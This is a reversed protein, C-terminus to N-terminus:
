IFEHSILSSYTQPREKVKLSQLKGIQSQYYVNRLIAYADISNNITDEIQEKNQNIGVVIGGVTYGIMANQLSEQGRVISLMQQREFWSAISFVNGFGMPLVLYPLPKEFYYQAIDELSLSPTPQSYTAYVDFFGGFGFLTNTLFHSTKKIAVTKHPIFISNAINLPQNLNQFFSFIHPQLPNPTIFDYGKALPLLVWNNGFKLTIFSKRNFSELPDYFTKVEEEFSDDEFFDKASAGQFTIISLAIILTSFLYKM